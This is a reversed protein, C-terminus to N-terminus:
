DPNAWLVHLWRGTSNTTTNQITNATGAPISFEAKREVSTPPAGDTIDEVSLLTCGSRISGPVKHTGVPGGPIIACGIAKPFGSLTPM